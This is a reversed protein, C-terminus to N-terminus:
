FVYLVFIDLPDCLSFLGNETNTFPQNIKVLPNGFNKRISAVYNEIFSAHKEARKSRRANSERAGSLGTPFIFVAMGDSM